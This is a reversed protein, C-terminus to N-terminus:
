PWVCMTYMCGRSAASSCGTGSDLTCGPARKLGPAMQAHRMRRHSALWQERWGGRGHVLCSMASAAAAATQQQLSSALMCRASSTLWVGVHTVRSHMPQALKEDGAQVNVSCATCPLAATSTCAQSMGAGARWAGGHSSHYMQTAWLAYSARHQYRPVDPGSGSAKNRGWHLRDQM